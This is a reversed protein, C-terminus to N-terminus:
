QQALGYVSQRRYEEWAHDWSIQLNGLRNLEALYERLLDEEWKRRDEIKLGNGLFYAADRFPSAWSADGWDMAVARDGDRKLFM